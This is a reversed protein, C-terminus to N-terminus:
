LYKNSAKHIKEVAKQGDKSDIDLMRHIIKLAGSIINFKNNTWQVKNSVLKADNSVLEQCKM